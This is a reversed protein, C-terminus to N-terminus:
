SLLGQYKDKNGMMTLVLLVTVVIAPPLGAPDLVIHFLLFNFAVAAMVVTALGVMKNTGLMVASALYIIGLIPFLHVGSLGAMYTMQPSGLSYEPAPMFGLFKNLGFVLLVLAFLYRSYLSAKGM